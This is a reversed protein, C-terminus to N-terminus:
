DFDIGDDCPWFTGCGMSQRAGLGHRQLFTSEDPELATIKIPHGYYSDGDIQFSRRDGFGIGFDCHGFWAGLRAGVKAGLEAPRYGAPARRENCIMVFDSELTNSPRVPRVRPEGVLLIHSGLRLPADTLDLVKDLDSKPVRLELTPDCDPVDFDLKDGRRVGGRLARLQWGRETLRRCCQTKIASHLVYRHDAPASAGRIDAYVEVLDDPITAEALERTTHSSRTM